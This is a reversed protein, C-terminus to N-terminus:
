ESAMWASCFTRMAFYPAKANSQQLMVLFPKDFILFHKPHPVGQASCAISMHAESKLKVGKEDMQFRIGQVASTIQLDKAVTPNAIALRAGVLESYERSKSTLSRCRSFTARRPPPRNPARAIRERVAVVTEELTGKPQLKGLIVRDNNSKTLLEIVFDDDGKYDIILVRAAMPVQGPKYEDDIGFCRVRRNGFALPREIKEFVPDFELNKFLYAYGVIDQPRPAARFSPLHTPSAQGHFKRLLEIAIRSYVGDRVYGALAVYSAEDLDDRTFSKKNLVAVMSPGKGAFSLNEGM